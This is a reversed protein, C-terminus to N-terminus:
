RFHYGLGVSTATWPRGLRAAVADSDVDVAPLLVGPEVALFVSWDGHTFFAAARASLLGVRATDDSGVYGESPAGSGQTWVVGGGLGLSFTFHEDGFPEFSLYFSAQQASVDVSGSAADIRSAGLSFAAAADLSLPGVLRYRAGVGAMPLPEPLDSVFTLGASASVLLFSPESREARRPNPPAEAVSTRSKAAPRPARADLRPPGLVQSIRLAVAAAGVAGESIAAHIPVTGSKPTYVYAVGQDGERLVVVAGLVPEDSTVLVLERLLEERHRAASARLTLEHGGAVLEAVIAQTGEAWTESAAVSPRLVVVLQGSGAAGAHGPRTAALGLFCCAFALVRSARRSGSSM